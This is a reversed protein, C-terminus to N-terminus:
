DVIVRKDAGSNPRQHAVNISYFNDAFGAIAVFSQWQDFFQL